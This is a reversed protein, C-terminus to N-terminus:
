LQAEREEVIKEAERRRIWADVEFILKQYQTAFTAGAGRMNWYLDSMQSKLDYLQTISLTHWENKPTIKPKESM